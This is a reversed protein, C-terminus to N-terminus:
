NEDLCNIVNHQETLTVIEQGGAQGTRKQSRSFTGSSRSWM